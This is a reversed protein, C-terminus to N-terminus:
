SWEAMGNGRLQGLAEPSKGPDLGLGRAVADARNFQVDRYAVVEVRNGWPDPFGNDDVM